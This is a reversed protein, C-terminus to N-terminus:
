VVHRSPLFPEVAHSGRFVVEGLKFPDVKSNLVNQM